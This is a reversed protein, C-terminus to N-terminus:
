ATGTVTLVEHGGPLARDVQVSLTTPGDVPIAFLVQHRATTGATVTRFPVGAGEDFVAGAVVGAATADFRLFSTDVPTAGATIVVPVAVARVMGTPAFATPSTFPTPTGLTISAGDSWVHPVDFGIPPSSQVPAAAAIPADGLPNSPVGPQDSAGTSNAIVVIGAVAALAVVVVGLSRLGIPRPQFTTTM